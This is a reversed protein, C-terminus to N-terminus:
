LSPGGQMNDKQIIIELMSIIQNDKDLKNILEQKEENTM